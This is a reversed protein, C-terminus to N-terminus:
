VDMCTTLLCKLAKLDNGSTQNKPSGYEWNDNHFIAKPWPGSSSAIASDTHSTSFVVEPFQDLLKRDFNRFM